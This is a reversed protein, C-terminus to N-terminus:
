SVMLSNVFDEDYEGEALTDNSGTTEWSAGTKGWLTKLADVAESGAKATQTVQQLFSSAKNSAPLPPGGLANPAGPVYYPYATVGNRAGSGRSSQMVFVILGLVGAAVGLAILTTRNM